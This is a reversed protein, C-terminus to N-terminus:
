REEPPNSLGCETEGVQCDKEPDGGCDQLGLYPLDHVLNM